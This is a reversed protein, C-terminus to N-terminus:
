EETPVPEGIFEKVEESLGKLNAKRAAEEAAEERAQKAKAEDLSMFVNFEKKGNEMDRVLVFHQKVLGGIKANVGMEYAAAFRDSEESSAERNDASILGKTKGQIQAKARSAYSAIGSMIANERGIKLNKGEAIGSIAIRNEEDEEMYTRYKLMAYDLTTTSAQMKWGEKKLEKVRRKVDKSLAKSQASAGIVATFLVAFVLMFNMFGKKM